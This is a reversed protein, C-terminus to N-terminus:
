RRSERVVVGSREALGDVLSVGFGPRSPPGIRGDAVDPLGDVISGYWTHRFARVSEQVLGNPQSAVLHVCAAFQIPGTCDHPAFPVDFSDAMSAVKRAV